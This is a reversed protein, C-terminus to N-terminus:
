GAAADQENGTEIWGSVAALAARDEDFSLAGGARRLTSAACQRAAPALWANCHALTELSKLQRIMVEVFAAGDRAIPRFADELVERADIPAVLVRDYLVEGDRDQWDLLLRTLTDIVAIATGPDNIGPSLAKDAIEGLVIFGFRPDSDFTRVEGLVFCDRLAQRLADDLPGEVCILPRIPTSYAGPRALVAITLGHSEALKQLQEMDCLQVYGPREARVPEGQPQGTLLRGGLLKREVTISVANSTAAEVAEITYGVRGIASIQGIWRILSTVVLVLVGLTVVFLFLRGAESYLGVSLGIIGVISFLFAGIFVSISTQARLDGAILPVARPTTASSASSLAGVVTSLAFVAVTLLSSALIQLITQVADAPMVFPLDEPAYRAVFYAVIITLVAIVSFAAPLFWMRQLLRRWVFKLYTM